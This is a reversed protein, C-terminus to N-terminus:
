RYKYPLSRKEHFEKLMVGIQAEPMHSYRVRNVAAKRSCDLRKSDTIRRNMDKVYHFNHRIREAKLYM